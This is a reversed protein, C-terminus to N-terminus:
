LSFLAQRMLILASQVTQVTENAQDTKLLLATLAIVNFLIM